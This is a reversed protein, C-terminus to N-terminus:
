NLNQSSMWEIFSKAVFAHGLANPHVADNSWTPYPLLWNQAGTVFYSSTSDAATQISQNLESLCATEAFTIVPTTIVLAEPFLTKATQITKLVKDQVSQTISPLNKCDSLGGSIVVVDPAFQLGCNLQSEFNIRAKCNSSDIKPITYGSSGKALNALQWGFKSAVQNAWGNGEGGSGYTISAGVFVAVRSGYTASKPGPGYNSVARLAISYRYKPKVNLVNITNGNTVGFQWTTGNNLSYQYRYATQAKSPAFYIRLSDSTRTVLTIKPVFPRNPDHPVQSWVVTPALFACMIITTLPIIAKCHTFKRM